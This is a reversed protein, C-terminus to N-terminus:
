RIKDRITQLLSAFSSRGLIRSFQSRYNNVISINEIIVDYVKWESGKLNLRYDITFEEGRDNIVKTGVDAYDGDRSESRYIVKERYSEISEVYSNEAPRYVAPHIGRTRCAHPPAVRLGIFTEGNGRFRVKSTDGQEVGADCRQRWYTNSGRTKSFRSCGISPSAFHDTPVGASAAGPQLLGLMLSATSLITTFKKIMRQQERSRSITTLKAIENRQLTDTWAATAFGNPKALRCNSYGPLATITLAM